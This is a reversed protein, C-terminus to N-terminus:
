IEFKLTVESKENTFTQKKNVIKLNQVITFHCTVLLYRFLSTVKQGRKEPLSQSANLFEAPIKVDEIVQPLNHELADPIFTPVM